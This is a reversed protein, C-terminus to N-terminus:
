REKNVSMRIEEKKGYPMSRYGFPAAESLLSSIAKSTLDVPPERLIM